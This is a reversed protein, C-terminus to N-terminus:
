ATRGFTKGGSNLLGFWKLLKRENTAIAGELVGLALIQADHIDHELKELLKPTLQERIKGRYLIHLNLAFFMLVQLWRIHAWKRFCSRIVPFPNDQDTARLASFFGHIQELQSIAAEARSREAHQATTSGSLLKPFLSGISESLGILRRVEENIEETEQTIALRAQEPLEYGEALLGENFRFRIQYRHGSPKKCPRAHRLEYKLLLGVHDVLLVPNDSQPLKGFCKRRAEVSTTLLEYFLAGPMLLRHSASLDLVEKRSMGQLFNKDLVVGNNM